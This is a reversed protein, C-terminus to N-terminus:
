HVTLIGDKTQTSSRRHVLRGKPEVTHLWKLAQNDTIIQFAHGPISIDTSLTVFVPGYDSSQVFVPIDEKCSSYVPASLGPPPPQVPLSLPTLPTSGHPGVLCYSDGEQTFRSKNNACISENHGWGSCLSCQRNGKGSRRRRPCHRRMHGVEHCEFCRIEPRSSSRSEGIAAILQNQGEVVQTLLMQLDDRSKCQPADCPFQPPVAHTTTAYAPNGSPLVQLSRFRKSFALMEDLGPTPHSELLKLQVVNPLGKFFQRRLLADFADESLDPEALHLADKLRWLYLTPDEADLSEFYSAAPGQLFAPLKCLRTEENWSNAQACREFHRFWSLFDGSSFREPIINTAM